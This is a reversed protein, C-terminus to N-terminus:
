FQATHEFTASDRGLPRSQENTLLVKGTLTIISLCVFVIIGRMWNGGSRRAARAPFISHQM